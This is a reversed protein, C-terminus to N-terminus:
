RPWVPSGIIRLSGALANVTEINGAATARCLHAIAPGGTTHLPFHFTAPPRYGAPVTAIVGGAALGGAPMTYDVSGIALRPGRYITGSGTVTGANTTAAATGPSGDLALALAKISDDVTQLTDTPDPYPLALNPTNTTM